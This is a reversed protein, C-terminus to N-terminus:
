SSRSRTQGGLREYFLSAMREDTLYTRMRSTLLEWDVQHGDFEPGDVCAFKTEGGVSVRCCGCMGTADVMLPTLTVMTKIGYPKTIESVAKLMAVPGMAIARGISNQDLIEKVFALGKHGRSGDDTGIHFEDSVSKLEDEFILLDSIRAGIVTIVKNGIRHLASAVFHLPAAFVGGGICLVNGFSDIECPNGLPGVVDLIEDGESFCGLEKTSKGVENFVLTIIGTSADAGAITLPFREGRESIRLVVFHGPKTKAAIEPAHIEFLKIRAALEKKVLIKNM